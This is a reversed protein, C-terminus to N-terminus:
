EDSTTLSGAAEDMTFNITYQRTVKGTTENTQTSRILTMKAPRDAAASTIYVQYIREVFAFVIDRIDGTTTNAEAASLEPLSARPITLTTDDSAYSTIWNTPVQSFAM